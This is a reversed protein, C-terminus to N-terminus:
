SLGKEEDVAFCFSFLKSAIDPCLEITLFPTLLRFVAFVACFRESRM